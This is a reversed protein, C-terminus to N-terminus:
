PTPPTPPTPPPNSGGSNSRLTSRLRAGQKGEPTTKGLKGIGTDLLTSADAYGTGAKEEVLVTQRKLDSKLTEQTQNERSITAADARLKAIDDTPDYKKTILLDKHEELYDAVGIMFGATVPVPLPMHTKRRQPGDATVFRAQNFCCQNFRAVNGSSAM